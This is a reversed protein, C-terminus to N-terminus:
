HDDPATWDQDRTLRAVAILSAVFVGVMAILLALQATSIPASNGLLFLIKRIVAVLGVVIFPQPLLTHARLSLVVTHVVEVLILVLLVQDLLDASAQVVPRHGLARFFDVVGAILLTLALVVLAIGVVVTVLDQAQEVLRMPASASFRFGRLPGRSSASGGAVPSPAAANGRADGLPDGPAPSGLAPGSGRTGEVGTDM